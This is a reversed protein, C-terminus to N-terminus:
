PLFPEIERYCIHSICRFGKPCKRFRCAMKGGNISKQEGKGLVKGLKKLNKM